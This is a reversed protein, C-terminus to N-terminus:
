GVAPCIGLKLEQQLINKSQHSFQHYLRTGVMGNTQHPPTRGTTQQVNAPTQFNGAKTDKCLININCTAIFSHPCLWRVEYM